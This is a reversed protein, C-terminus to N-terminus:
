LAGEYAFQRAIKQRDLKGHILIHRLTLAILKTDSALSRTRMYHASLDLKRPLLCERYFEEPNQQEALLEEENRFALSALDVIGPRVSLVSEWRPDFLDVYEPVEPRPGVFNMDGCFVNWLQPLEDLKYARLLKGVATIRTDSRTTITSGMSMERMSRLKMLLFSKGNKGIRRQRFFISGRDECFVAAASAAIVPFVVILSIGAAIKRFLDARKMKAM